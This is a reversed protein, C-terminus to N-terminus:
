LNIVANLNLKWYVSYLRLQYSHMFSHKNAIQLGKQWKSLKLKNICVAFQLITREMFLLCGHNWIWKLKSIRIAFPQYNRYRKMVRSQYTNGTWHEITDDVFIIIILTIEDCKDPQHHVHISRDKPANYYYQKKFKVNAYVLVLHGWIVGILKHFIHRHNKNSLWVCVVFFLWWDQSNISTKLWLIRANEFKSSKITADM